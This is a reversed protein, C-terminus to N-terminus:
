ATRQWYFKNCAADDMYWTAIKQHITLSFTSGSAINYNSTRAMATRMYLTGADTIEFSVFGENNTTNCWGTYFSQRWGNDNSTLGLSTLTLRGLNHDTTGSDASTILQISIMIDHGSRLIRLSDISSTYSTGITFYVSPDVAGSAGSIYSFESFEKDILTWTGGYNAYPNTNTSTIVIDGVSYLAKNWVNKQLDVIPNGYADVGINLFNYVYSGSIDRRVGIRNYLVGGSTYLPRIEGLRTGTGDQYMIMTGYIDSSPTTAINISPSTLIINDSTGSDTILYLQDSAVTSASVMSDYQSKNLVNFVVQSLSADTSILAM